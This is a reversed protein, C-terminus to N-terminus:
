TVVLPGSYLIPTEPSTAIKIWVAYSGQALNISGSPGVLCQAIFVTPYSQTTGWSGNTFHTTSTPTQSAAQVYSGYPGMFAFSVSASTPDYPATISSQVYM